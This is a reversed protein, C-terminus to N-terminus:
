IKEVSKWILGWYLIERFDTRPTVHPCSLLSLRVSRVFANPAHLSLANLSAPVPVSICYATDRQTVYLQVVSRRFLFLSAACTSSTCQPTASHLFCGHTQIPCAPWSRSLSISKPQFTKLAVTWKCGFRRELYRFSLLSSHSSRTFFSLFPRLTVLILFIWSYSHVTVLEVYGITAWNNLFNRCKVSYRVKSVIVWWITELVM